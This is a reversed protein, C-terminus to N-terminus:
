IAKYHKFPRTITYLTKIQVLPWEQKNKAKTKLGRPWKYRPCNLFFIIIVLNYWYVLPGPMPTRGTRENGVHTSYTPGTWYLPGFYVPHRVSTCALGEFFKDGFIFYRCWMRSNLTFVALSFGDEYINMLVIFDKRLRTCRTFSTRVRFRANQCTEVTM